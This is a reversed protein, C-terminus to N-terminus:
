SGIDPVPKVLRETEAAFGNRAYFARGRQNSAFVDLALFRFGSRAAWAEAEAMLRQALGRGEAEPLVALLSVYGFPEDTFPDQDPEAHLFGLVAGAQEALLTLAGAKGPALAEAMFTEQFAAVEAPPRWPLTCVGALRPAFAMLAARDEPAAPRFTVTDTM